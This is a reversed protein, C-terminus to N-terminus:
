DLMAELRDLLARPGRRAHLCAVLIVQQPQVVFYLIYPFRKVSARRVERYAM